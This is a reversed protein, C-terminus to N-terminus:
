FDFSCKIDYEFQSMTPSLSPPVSENVSAPTKDVHKITFNNWLTWGANNTRLELPLTPADGILLSEKLSNTDQAHLRVNSPDIAYGEANMLNHVQVPMRNTDSYIAANLAAAYMLAFLAIISIGKM